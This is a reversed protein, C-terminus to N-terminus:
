KEGGEQCIKLSILGSIKNTKDRLCERIQEEEIGYDEYSGLYEVVTFGITYGEKNHIAKGFVSGVGLGEFFEHFTNEGIDKLSSIDPITCYNGERIERCWYGFLSRFQQQFGPMAPKVGIAVKENTISMKVASNGVLDYLGNHYRVMLARSAKVSARLHELVQDISHNIQEQFIDEAIDHHQEPEFRAGILKEILTRNMKSQEREREETRKNQRWFLYLFVSGIVLLLGNEAILKTINVLEM